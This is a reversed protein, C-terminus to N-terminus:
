LGSVKSPPLRKVSRSIHPLTIQFSSNAKKRDIKRKKREKKKLERNRERGKNPEREEICKPPFAKTM